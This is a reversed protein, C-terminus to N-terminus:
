KNKRDENNEEIQAKENSIARLFQEELTSKSQTIEVLKGGAKEIKEIVRYVDDDISIQISLVNGSLKVEYGSNRFDTEAEQGMNAATIEWRKSKPILESVPGLAILEGRYLIAVRDAVAEVESLMHSCLLITRGLKKQAMIFERVEVTGLPDLGNTPEDLILLEPDNVMASAIGIRQRMGRSYTRIPMDAGREYLDVMKLLDNIRPQLINEPVMCLKGYYNLLERGNLFEYFYPAEPLYGIRKQAEINGPAAGFIDIEGSTPFIMGLLLKMTTTKGSGNPGVIALTEGKKIDLTLNSVADITKNNMLKYRKSLNKIEFIKSSKNINEGTTKAM